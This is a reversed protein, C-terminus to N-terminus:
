AFPALTMGVELLRTRALRAMALACASDGHVCLSDAQIWLPRGEIDVVPEGRAISVAREAGVRADTILAGPIGRPVLM